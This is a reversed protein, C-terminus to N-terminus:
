EFYFTFCVTKSISSYHQSIHYPSDVLISVLTPASVALTEELLDSTDLREGDLEGLTRSKGPDVSSVLWCYQTTLAPRATISSELSTLVGTPLMLLLQFLTLTSEVPWDTADVTAQTDLLKSLDEKLKAPKIKLLMPTLVKLPSVTLKLTTLPVQLGDVMADKTEKLDQATLSNNSLFVLVKDRSFISPNSLELLQSPGAHDVNDKTKLKQFKEKLLGTLM